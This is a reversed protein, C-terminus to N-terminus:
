NIKYFSFEYKSVQVYRSVEGLAYLAASKIMRDSSNLGIKIINEFKNVYSRKMCKSYKNSVFAM